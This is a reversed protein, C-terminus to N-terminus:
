RCAPRAIPSPDCVHRKSLGIELAVPGLSVAVPVVAQSGRFMGCGLLEAWASFASFRGAAWLM